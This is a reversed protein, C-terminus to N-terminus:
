ACEDRPDLGWPDGETYQQWYAYDDRDHDKLAALLSSLAINLTTNVSTDLGVFRDFEIRDDEVGASVRVKDRMLFLDITWCPPLLQRMEYAIQEIGGQPRHGQFLLNDLLLRPFEDVWFILAESDITEAEKWNDLDITHFAWATAEAVDDPMDGDTPAWRLRERGRAISSQLYRREPEEVTALVFEVYKEWEDRARQVVGRRTVDITM